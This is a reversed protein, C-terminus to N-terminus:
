FQFQFLLVLVEQLSVDIFTYLSVICIKACTLRLPNKTRIMCIFISIIDMMLLEYLDSLHLAVCLNM